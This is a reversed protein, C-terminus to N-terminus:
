FKRIEKAALSKLQFSVIQEEYVSSRSYMAIGSGSNKVSSFTASDQSSFVCLNQILSFPITANCQLNIQLLVLFKSNIVHIFSLRTIANYVAPTALSTLKMPNVFVQSVLPACMHRQRHPVQWFSCVLPTHVDKLILPQGPSLLPPFPYFSRRNAHEGEIKWGGHLLNLQMCKVCHGSVNSVQILLSREM